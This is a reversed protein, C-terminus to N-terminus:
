ESPEQGHGKLADLYGVGYAKRVYAMALGLTLEEDSDVKVEALLEMIRIEVLEDPPNTNM